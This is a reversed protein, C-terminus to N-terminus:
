TFTGGSGGDAFAGYDVDFSANVEGGHAFRLTLPYTRGLELPHKLGTLRVHVGAETLETTQGEPIPIDIAGGSGGREAGRAVPTEVGILRDSRTVEDFRMCIKATREGIPTARTWPHTIRLSSAFFECARASPAILAASLGSGLALGARLLTRRHIPPPM